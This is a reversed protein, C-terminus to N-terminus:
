TCDDKTGVLFYTFHHTGNSSVICSSLEWPNARVTPTCTIQYGVSIFRLYFCVNLQSISFFDFRFCWFGYSILVFFICDHRSMTSLCEMVDVSWIYLLINLSLIEIAKKCEKHKIRALQFSLENIPWCGDVSKPETRNEHKVDFHNSQYIWHFKRKKYLVSSNEMSLM